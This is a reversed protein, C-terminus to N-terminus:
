PVVPATPPTAFGYVRLRHAKGAILDVIPRATRRHPKRRYHAALALEMRGEMKALRKRDHLDACKHRKLVTVFAKKVGARESRKKLFKLLRKDYTQVIVKEVRYKCGSLRHYVDILVNAPPRKPTPRRRKGAAAETTGLLTGGLAAAGATATVLFGRRSVVRDVVSPYGQEGSYGEVPTVRKM